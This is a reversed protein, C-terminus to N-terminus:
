KNAQQAFFNTYISQIDRFAGPKLQEVDVPQETMREIHLILDMVQLSTIFRQEIIPTDDNLQDASVKGSSKAVWEKLALKVEQETKM